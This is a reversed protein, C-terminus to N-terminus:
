SGARGAAALLSRAFRRGAAQIEDLVQMPEGDACDPQLQSAAERALGTRKAFTDTMRDLESTVEDGRRRLEDALKPSQAPPQGALLTLERAWYTCAMAARVIERTTVPTAAVWGRALPGAASRLAQLSRDLERAQAAAQGGGQGTTLGGIAATVAGRLTRLFDTGANRLVESTRQPWLVMAVVIGAAAGILTEDLRMELLAPQFMGLLAYLLSLMITIWFIMVAYATQFAYFALTDCLLALALILKPEGTVTRAVEIGVGVGLLTGLVRQAAKTLTAARTTTSALVIFAALVSWYWRRGSILHGLGVAAGCALTVQLAQRFTPWLKTFGSRGEPKAQSDAPQAKAQSIEEAAEDPMRSALPLVRAAAELRELAAKIPRHSAQDGGGAWHEGTEEALSSTTMLKRRLVSLRALLAPDPAAPPGAGLSVRALREAALELEFLRRGLRTSVADTKGGGVAVIQDEAALVAEELRAIHRRLARRTRPGPAGDTILTEVAGLLRAIRREFSRVTRPLAREPRDPLLVFRFLAVWATALAAAIVDYPLQGLKPRLAQGIYYAIFGLMGFATGRPGLARALMAAFIVALLGLDSVISSAALVAALSIAALAPLPMLLTTVLQQRPKPDRVSVASFQAIMFGLAIGGVPMTAWFNIAILSLVTCTVIAGLRVAFMLRLQGPDAGLLREWAAVILEPM